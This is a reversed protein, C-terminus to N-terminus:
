KNDMINNLNPTVRKSTFKFTDRPSPELNKLTEQVNTFCLWQLGKIFQLLMSIVSFSTDFCYRARTM